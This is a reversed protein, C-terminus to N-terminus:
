EPLDIRGGGALGDYEGYLPHDFNHALYFKEVWEEHAWRRGVFYRLGYIPSIKRMEHDANFESIALREGNHESFTFGMVDDFYCYIRPLLLDADAELMPMAQRTSSYFDLDFSIFGIPAPRSDLFGAVTEEVLGLKLQARKLRATLREFDMPFDGFRYLNPLDRHDAPKPLGAGTDFGYVELEVGCAEEVMEVTRDMALLGNGGAVGLEIASVRPMGLTKALHAAYVMGWTYCPRQQRGLRDAIRYVAANLSPYACLKGLGYRPDAIIDPEAIWNQVSGVAKRLLRKLM